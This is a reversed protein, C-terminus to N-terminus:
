SAMDRLGHAVPGVALFGIAGLTMAMGAVRYRMVRGRRLFFAAHVVRGALLVMAALHLRIVTATLFILWLAGLGAYFATIPLAM